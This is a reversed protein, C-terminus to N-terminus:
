IQKKSNLNKQFNQIKKLISIPFDLLIMKTISTGKNLHDGKSKIPNVAKQVIQQLIEARPLVQVIMKQNNVDEMVGKIAKIIVEPIAELVVKIEIMGVEILIEEGLAEEIEFLVEIVLDEEEKGSVVETELVEEEEVEGIIKLNIEEIMITM